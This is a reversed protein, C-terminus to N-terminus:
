LYYTLERRIDKAKKETREPQSKVMMVEGGWFLLIAGQEQGSSIINRLTDDSPHNLDTM